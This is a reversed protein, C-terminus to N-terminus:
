KAIKFVFIYEHDRLYLHGNAIAPHSWTRSASSSRRTGPIKSTIPLKFQSALKLDKATPDALALGVDGEDSFLYLMGDASVLSGSACKFNDRDDWEVNGTKIEQCVWMGPESHGYIHAGIQVVGGDRNKLKKQAAKKYVEKAEQKKSIEFLHCSDSSTFYVQNGM